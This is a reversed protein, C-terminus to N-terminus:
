KKLKLIEVAGVTKIIKVGNDMTDRYINMMPLELTDMLAQNYAEKQAQEIANVCAEWAPFQKMEDITVYSDEEGSLMSILHSELIEEATKM